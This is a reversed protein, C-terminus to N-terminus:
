DNKLEKKRNRCYKTIDNVDIMGQQIQNKSCFVLFNEIEEKRAEKAKELLVQKSYMNAVLNRQKQKRIIRKENYYKRRIFCLTKNMKKATSKMAEYLTKHNEKRFEEDVTNVITKEKRKEEHFDEIFETMCLISDCLITANRRTAVPPMICCKEYFVKKNCYQCKMTYVNIGLTNLLVKREEKKISAIKLEEMNKDSKKNRMKRHKNRQVPLIKHMRQM